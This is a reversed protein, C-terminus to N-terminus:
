LESQVTISHAASLTEEGTIENRVLCRYSRVSDDLGVRLVVLSDLSPLLLHQQLHSGLPLICERKNCADLPPSKQTRSETVVRTSIGGREEEPICGSSVFNFPPM